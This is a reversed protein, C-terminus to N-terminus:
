IMFIYFKSTLIFFINNKLLIHHLPFCSFSDQSMLLSIACFYLFMYFTCTPHLFKFYSLLPHPLLASSLYPQRNIQYHSDPSENITNGSFDTFNLHWLSVPSNYFHFSITSIASRIILVPMFSFSAYWTTQATIASHTNQYFPVPHTQLLLTQKHWFDGRHPSLAPKIIILSFAARAFFCFPTSTNAPEKLRRWGRKWFLADFHPNSIIFCPILLSFLVTSWILPIEFVKPM